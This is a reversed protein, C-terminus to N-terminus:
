RRGKWILVMFYPGGVLAALLGAPIQWPFILMRGAWDASVLMMGGLMASAFLQPLARQLGLMRALRPAMLGVFSLPGIVLTAITTPVSILGLLVVRVRFLNLGLERSAAEGLPLIELWRSTLPVIALLATATVAAITADAATARYTSGSLWGILTDLRPDGSALMVASFASAMTAVAVGSLLLRDNAIPQRSGTPSIMALSALAGVLGAAIMAPRNVDSTAVFLLLIGLSAGGSIGLVEPAAMPNGTMRQMLTGVVGLVMGACVAVVIRPARLPLLDALDAASALHWGAAGRGVFLAACLLVAMAVLGALLCAWGSRRRVSSLMAGDRDPSIRLKPLLLFLLPAGFFATAVGAPIESTFPMVQVLRDTLWLLAAGALPAWVMRQRLTRAGALRVLAPAALAVFSIVGVAAVVMSSLAVAVTLGALRTVVPKTGLSEAGEDSLDLLRLPRLLLFAAIGAVALWPAFGFVVADGNQILSGSQWIFLEESYERNAAMLLASASSCTLSVVLGSIIIAVPSFSRGQALALVALTSLAGGALAVWERGQELLWPAYLTAVTLAVTAGANTGITTPEALPNRLVQQLLTGTLGLAAGALLSIALRPLFAHRYLLQRPDAFDAAGLSQWWMDAPLLHLLGAATLYAALAAPVGVLAVLMGGMFRTRLGATFQMTTM